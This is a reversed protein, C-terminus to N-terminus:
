LTDPPLESIAQKLMKALHPKLADCARSVDLEKARLFLALGFILDAEPLYGSNQWRWGQMPGDSMAEFEFRTNALFVGFGLYVAALDTLFEIEDDECPPSNAATALLYHALEHAFTAILRDPRQLQATAYTIQIRNGDVGFTGLAHRQPEVMAASLAPTAALPNDDPILDVEWDSMGCYSKVQEFLRLALAHGQEGEFTFFGPKPLVLKSEALGDRGGFERVLWEMNEALWSATDADVIPKRRFPWIAGIAVARAETAAL